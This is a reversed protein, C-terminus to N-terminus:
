RPVRLAEKGGVAADVVVAPEAAMAQGGVLVTGCTVSGEAGPEFDDAARGERLVKILRWGETDSLANVQCRRIQCRRRVYM